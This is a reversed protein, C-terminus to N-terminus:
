AGADAREDIARSIAAEIRATYSEMSFPASPQSVDQWAKSARVSYTIRTPPNLAWRAAIDVYDRGSQTIGDRLGLHTMLTTGVREAPMRGTMTAMPIGGIIAARVGVYDSAPVTDLIIDVLDSLIRETDRLVSSSTSFLRAADIGAHVLIKKVPVIDEDDLPAILFVAEPVREAIQAWLGVCRLSLHGVSALVGFVTAGSQIGLAARSPSPVFMSAPLVPLACGEITWPFPPVADADLALDLIRDSLRGDLDGMAAPRDLGPLAIQFAAPRCSLIGPKAYTGFGTADFLLDVRDARIIEAAHFEDLAALSVVKVVVTDKVERPTQDTPSIAYIAVSFRAHDHHRVLGAILSSIFPLSFDVLYGVTLRDGPNERVHPLPKATTQYTARLADVFRLHLRQILHSSIDHRPVFALLEGILAVADADADMTTAAEALPLLLETERTLEGRFRAVHCQLLQSYDIAPYAAIFQEAVLMWESRRGQAKLSQLLRIRAQRSANSGVARRFVKEADIHNGSEALLVGANYAAAAHDPALILARNFLMLSSEIDGLHSLVTAHWFIPEVDTPAIGLATDSFGRAVAWRRLQGHARVQLRLVRLNVGAAITVDDLVMLADSASGQEILFGALNLRADIDDPFQQLLVELCQSALPFNNMEQALQGQARLLPAYDPQEKRLEALTAAIEQRSKDDGASLQRRMAGHLTSFFQRATSNMMTPPSKQASLQIYANELAHTYDVANVGAAKTSVAIKQRIGSMFEADRALRVAISVFTEESEAILSDIGLHALISTGIRESHRNGTLTVVPVGMDLAALTTDGGAYPFTDMVADVLRYRARLSADTNEVTIIAIRATDIGASSLLRVIATKEAAVLPSFLLIAEPLAELVRSWVGLCRPSLKLLNLFAGFVFKGEFDINTGTKPNDSKLAARSYPFVGVGLIYPKEIQWDAAHDLDAVRDTLKYDVASMGLCGHYGLHTVITRAPRHAYIGPRASNTHGGLDVLVDIDAEAISKAAAFDDLGSVDAFGDVLRQFEATTADHQSKACISILFISFRTRDHRAIVDLMLSGMVHQRFDGSVYGIRIRSDAARRGLLAVRVPDRASVAADYRRYAGLMSEGSVDFYQLMGLVPAFQEPTFNEFPWALALSLYQAERARDGMPRCLALGAVVKEPSLATAREWEIFAGIAEEQRGLGLLARYLADWAPAHSPNQALATRLAAISDELRNRSQLLIALNYAAESLQPNLELAKEFAEMAASENSLGKLVNGLNNYGEALNPNIRVARAYMEAAEPLRQLHQYVLGLNYCAAWAEPARSLLAAYGQAAEAFRGANQHALADASIRRLESESGTVSM